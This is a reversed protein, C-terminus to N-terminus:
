YDLDCVPCGSAEEVVVGAPVVGGPADVADDFGTGAGVLGSPVGAGGGVGSGGFGSPESFM